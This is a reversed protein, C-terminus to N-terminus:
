RRIHKHSQKSPLASEQNGSDPNLQAAAQNAAGTSAVIGSTLFTRRKMRCEKLKLIVPDDYRDAAKTAITLRLTSSSVPFYAAQETLEFRIRFLLGGM